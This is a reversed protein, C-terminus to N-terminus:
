LIDELYEGDEEDDVIELYFDDSLTDYSYKVKPNEKELRLASIYDLNGFFSDNEYPSHGAKVWFHLAQREKKSLKMGKEYEKLQQQLMEQRLRYKSKKKMYWWM